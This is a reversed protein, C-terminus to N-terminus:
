MFNNFHLLIVVYLGQLWYLKLCLSLSFLVNVLEFLSRKEKAASTEHLLLDGALTIIQVCNKIATLM